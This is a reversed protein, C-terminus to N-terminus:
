VLDVVPIVEDAADDEARGDARHAPGLPRPAVLVSLTALGLFAGAAAFAALEHRALGSEGQRLVSGAGHHLFLVYVVAYASCGAIAVALALLAVTAPFTPRATADSLVVLLAAGLAVLAAFMTIPTMEVISDAFSVGHAPVVQTLLEVGLGVAAGAVLWAAVRMTVPTPRRHPCAGVLAAERRDPRGLTLAGVLALAAVVGSALASCILWGRSPTDGLLRSANSASRYVAWVAGAVGLVSATSAVALPAVGQVAARDRAVVIMAVVAFALLAVPYVAFSFSASDLRAALSSGGVAESVQGSVSTVAVEVAIEVLAAVALLTLVAPAALASWVPLEVTTPISPATGDEIGAVSSSRTVLWLACLSLLLMAAGLGTAGSRAATGWNSELQTHGIAADTAFVWTAYAYEVVALAATAGVVV